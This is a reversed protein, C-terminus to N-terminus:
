VPQHISYIDELRISYNMNSSICIILRYHGLLLYRAYLKNSHNLSTLPPSPVSSSACPRRPKSSTTNSSTFAATCVAVCSFTQGIVCAYHKSKRWPSTPPLNASSFSSIHTPCTRGRSPSLYILFAEMSRFYPLM